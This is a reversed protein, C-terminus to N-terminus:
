RAKTVLSTKHLANKESKGRSLAESILHRGNPGKKTVHLGSNLGIVSSQYSVDFPRCRCIRGEDRLGRSAVDLLVKEVTPSLLAVVCACCLHQM